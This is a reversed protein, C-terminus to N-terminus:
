SFPLDCKARDFGAYRSAFQRVRQAKIIFPSWSALIDLWELLSFRNRGKSDPKVGLGQPWIHM